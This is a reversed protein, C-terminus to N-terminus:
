WIWRMQHPSLCSSINELLFILIFGLLRSPLEENYTFYMTLYPSNLYFRFDAGKVVFKLDNVGTLGSNLKFNRANKMRSHIAPLTTFSVGLRNIRSLFRKVIKTQFRWVACGQGHVKSARAYKKPSIWRCVSRTHNSNFTSYHQSIHLLVPQELKNFPLSDLPCIGLLFLLLWYM